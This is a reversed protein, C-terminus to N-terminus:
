LTYGRLRVKLSAEMNINYKKLLRGIENRIPQDSVSRKWIFILSGRLCNRTLGDSWEKKVEDPVEDQYQELIHDYEENLAEMYALREPSRDMMLNNHDRGELLVFEVDDRTVKDRNAYICPGDFGVFDDLDGQIIMVATHKARNIGNTATLNMQDGFTARLTLWIFPKEVYVFSGM